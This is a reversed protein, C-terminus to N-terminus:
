HKGLEDDVLALGLPRKGLAAAYAQCAPSYIKSGLESELLKREQVSLTLAVPSFSAGPEPYATKLAEALQILDSSHCISTSLIGIIVLSKSINFKMNLKYKIM